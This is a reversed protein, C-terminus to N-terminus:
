TSGISLGIAARPRRRLRRRAGPETRPMSQLGRPSANGDAETNVSPPGTIRRDLGIPLVRRRVGGTSGIVAERRMGETDPGVLSPLVANVATSGPAVVRWSWRRTQAGM